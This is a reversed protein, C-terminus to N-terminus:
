EEKIHYQKKVNRTVLPNHFIESMPDRGLYVQHFTCSCVYKLTCVILDKYVNACGEFFSPVPVPPCHPGIGAENIAAVSFSRAKKGVMTLRTTKGIVKGKNYHTQNYYIRYQYGTIPGNEQYCELKKWEFTVTTAKQVIAKVESPYGTPEQM